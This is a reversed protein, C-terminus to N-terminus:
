EADAPGAVRRRGPFGASLIRSATEADDASKEPGPGPEQKVGTQALVSLHHPLLAASVAGASAPWHVTDAFSLDPSQM